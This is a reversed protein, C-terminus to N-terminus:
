CDLRGNTLSETVLQLFDDGVKESLEQILEPPISNHGPSKNNPIDKLTRLTEENSFDWGLMENM